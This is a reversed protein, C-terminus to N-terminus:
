LPNTSWIPLLGSTVMVKKPALKAKSLAKSSRTTWGSLPHNGTTMYFGSKLACWLGILFHNMTTACFSLLHYKLIIVKKLKSWSMLCGSISSKWRELKSWIHLSQLISALSNKQLKKHLQLLIRKSSHEWSTTTLKRHSAVAHRIKLNRTEKASSRSGGCCQINRLLRQVLHTTSTTLQRRQKIVWKSSSYSFDSLNAKQRAENGYDIMVYIM